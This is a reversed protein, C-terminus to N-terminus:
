PEIKTVSLRGSANKGSVQFVYDDAAEVTVSFAGSSLKSGTYPESGNKGRIVLGLDGSQLDAEVWLKNGADLSLECKNQDSWKTFDMTFSNGDPSELIVIGGRPARCGSLAATLALALALLLLLASKLGRRHTYLM